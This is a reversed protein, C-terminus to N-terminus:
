KMFTPRSQDSRPDILTKIQSSTGSVIPELAGSVVEELPLAVPAIDAWGAERAAILRLAKPLDVDFVSANSGVLEVERLIFDDLDLTRHHRQHGVLVLRTGRMTLALAADLGATSGTVEYVVSPTLAHEELYQAANTEDPNIIHAAGLQQAQLLRRDDLDVAVVTAGDAAAAHTMFTGIAGTGILVAVDRAELRGRGVAHVGISMPQALAAADTTLGYPAVDMCISAPVAVYEALAGNRELGVTWYDRCLNTRGRRCWHCRRCAVGASSVVEMGVEFGVVEGGVAEVRGVFEHGPIMPGEHGTQRDRHAIPFMMPGTDYEAADTGCVGVALVELLLEDRGAIPTPVDEIRIDHNGYFVAARM